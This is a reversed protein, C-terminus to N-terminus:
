FFSAKKLSYKNEWEDEEDSQTGHIIFLMKISSIHKNIFSYTFSFFSFCSSFLILTFIDAISWSSRSVLQIKLNYIKSLLKKISLQLSNNISTVLNGEQKTAGLIILRKVCGHEYLHIELFFTTFCVITNIIHFM